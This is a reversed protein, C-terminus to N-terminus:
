ISVNPLYLTLLLSILLVIDVSEGNYATSTDNDSKNNDWDVTVLVEKIM